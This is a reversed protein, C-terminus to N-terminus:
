RSGWGVWALFGELGRAVSILSRDYIRANGKCLACSLEQDVIRVFTDKSVCGDVAAVDGLDNFFRAAEKGLRGLSEVALPVFAYGAGNGFREFAQRKRTEALAVAFGTEQSARQAYSAAAPNTVVCDLVTIRGGPMKHPHGRQELGCSRWASKSGGEM